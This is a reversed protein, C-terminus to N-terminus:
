RWRLRTVVPTTGALGLRLALLQVSSCMAGARGNYISVVDLVFPWNWIM